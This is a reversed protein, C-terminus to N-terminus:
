GYIKFSIWEKFIFACCSSLIILREVACILAHVFYRLRPGNQVVLKRSQGGLEDLEPSVCADLLGPTFNVLAMNAEFNAAANADNARVFRLTAEFLRV